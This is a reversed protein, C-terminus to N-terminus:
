ECSMGNPTFLRDYTTTGTIVPIPAPLNSVPHFTVDMHNCDSVEFTLTGYPIQSLNTGLYNTNVTISTQGVAFAANGVLWLPDHNTDETLLDFVLQRVTSGNSQLQETIQVLLGENFQASYWQAASYGDLPLPAYADPYSSQTPSYAPVTFEALSGGGLLMPNVRIKMAYSYYHLYDATYNELVYTTSFIIPADYPGDGTYTNPEASARVFSAPEPDDLSGYDISGQKIQVVPFTPFIATDGEYASDRDIRMLTMANFGGDTNYPTDAGSSSCAVRWITITVTETGASGGTNANRAFLPVRASWTQGSFRNPLPWAACSPPYARYENALPTGPYTNSGQAKARNSPTDPAHRRVTAIAAKTKAIAADHYTSATQSADTTRDALAPLAFLGAALALTLRLPNKM